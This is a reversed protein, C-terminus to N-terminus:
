RRCCSPLLWPNLEGTPFVELWLKVISFNRMDLVSSLVVQFCTKSALSVYGSFTLSVLIGCGPSCLCRQSSVVRCQYLLLVPEAMGVVAFPTLEVYRHQTRVYAVFPSGRKWAQTFKSVLNRM